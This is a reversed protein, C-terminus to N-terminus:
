GSATIMFKPAEAVEVNVDTERLLSEGIILLYDLSDELIGVLDSFCSRLFVDELFVIVKAFHLKFELIFDISDVVADTKSGFQLEIILLDCTLDQSGLIDKFFEIMLLQSSYSVFKTIWRM